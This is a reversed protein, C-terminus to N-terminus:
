KRRRICLGALALLSLTGTTPEPVTSNVVLKLVKGDQELVLQGTAIATADTKEPDGYQYINYTKELLSKDINGIREAANVLTVSDGEKWTMEDLADFTIVLEKTAWVDDGLPAFEDLSIMPAANGAVMHFNIHDFDALRTAEIGTGYIDVSNNDVAVEWPEYEAVAVDGLSIGDTHGYTVGGILVEEAGAGVLHLQNSNVTSGEDYSSGVALHNLSGGTVIAVNGISNAGSQGVYVDHDAIGGTVVLTNYNADGWTWSSDGVIIDHVQGGIMTVTNHNANSEEGETYGGWIYYDTDTTESAAERITVSAYEASETESYAGYYGPAETHTIGDVATPTYIGAFATGSLM